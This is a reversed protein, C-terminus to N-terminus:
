GRDNAPAVMMRRRGSQGPRYRMRLSRPDGPAIGKPCHPRFGLAAGGRESGLILDHLGHGVRARRFPMARVGGPEELLKQELRVTPIVPDEVLLEAIQEIGIVDRDTRTVRTRLAAQERTGAAGLDAREARMDISRDLAQQRLDVIRPKGSHQADQFDTQMVLLLM